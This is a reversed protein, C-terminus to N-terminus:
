ECLKFCLFLVRIARVFSSLSFWFPSKESGDDNANGDENSLTRIIAKRLMAIMIMVMIMMVVVVVSQHLTMFTKFDIFRTNLFMILLRYICSTFKFKVKRFLNELKIHLCKPKAHNSWSDDWVMMSAAILYILWLCHRQILFPKTISPKSTCTMELWHRITNSDGRITFSSELKRVVSSFSEYFWNGRSVDSFRCLTQNIGIVNFHANSMSLKNFSTDCFFPSM